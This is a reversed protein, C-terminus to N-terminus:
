LAASTVTPSHGSFLLLARTGDGARSIINIVVASTVPQVLENLGTVPVDYGDFALLPM